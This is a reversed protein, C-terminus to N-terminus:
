LYLRPMNYLIAAQEEALCRKSTKYDPAFVIMQCHAMSDISESLYLLNRSVEPFCTLEYYDTPSNFAFWETDTMRKNVEKTINKIRERIESTDDDLTDDRDFPLSVFLAKRQKEM